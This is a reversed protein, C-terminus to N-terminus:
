KHFDRRQLDPVSRQSLQAEFAQSLFAPIALMVVELVAISVTQIIYLFFFDKGNVYKNGCCLNWPLYESVM